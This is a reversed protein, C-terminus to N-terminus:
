HNLEAGLNTAVGATGSLLDDLKANLQCLQCRAVSGLDSGGTRMRKRMPYVLEDGNVLAVRCNDFVRLLDSTGIKDEPQVYMESNGIALTLTDRRMSDM